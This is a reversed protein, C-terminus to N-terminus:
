FRDDWWLMTAFGVSCQPKVQTLQLKKLGVEKLLSYVSSGMKEPLKGQLLGAKLLAHFAVGKNSVIIGPLCTSNCGPLHQSMLHKKPGPQVHIM